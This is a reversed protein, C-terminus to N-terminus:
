KPKPTETVSSVPETPNEANSAAEMDDLLKQRKIDNVVNSLSAKEKKARKVTFYL